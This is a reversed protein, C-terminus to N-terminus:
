NNWQKNSTHSQGVQKGIEPLLSNTKRNLKYSFKL